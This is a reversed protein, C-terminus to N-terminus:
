IINCKESHVENLYGKILIYYMLQLRKFKAMIINKNIKLVLIISITLIVQYGKHIMM